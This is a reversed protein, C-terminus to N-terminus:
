AAAARSSYLASSSEESFSSPDPWYTRCAHAVNRLMVGWFIWRGADRSLQYLPPHWHLPNDMCSRDSGLITWRRLVDCLRAPDRGYDAKRM